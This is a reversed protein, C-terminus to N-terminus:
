QNIPYSATQRELDALASLLKFELINTQVQSTTLQNRADLLEIFGNIGERYGRDILKFYSQASEQQKRSALLNQYANLANNRSVFAALELQRQTNSTTLALNKIEIEQQQIKYLNRKGQFLPIQLQLGAIYFLSGEKVKFDFGQAGLDLFTNLRPVRYSKNMKLLDTNIDRAIDLSKLEERRASQGEISSQLPDLFTDSWTMNMVEITDLLSRNLLFNFYARANAQENKANQWQAEVQKVESEARSVYAPLGKGNALLSQNLRLNQNVVVLANAYIDIAKGSMLYNYYATKIEKILERKYILIETEKLGTQKTKIDRNIRIDPNILPMVTKIRADYFNDPALQESVNKIQPFNNSSTLQNLTSYVPNLLDGVPIEIARGGGALTYQTEFSSSPLFYSKAEKLAVLSKELSGQKEKLVLNQALGETIYRDLATQAMGSVGAGFLFLSLLFTKTGSEM